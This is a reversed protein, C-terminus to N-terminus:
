IRAYLRRTKASLPMFTARGVIACQIRRELIRLHLGSPWSRLPLSQLALDLSARMMVIRQIRPRPHLNAQPLNMRKPGFSRAIIDRIRIINTDYPGFDSGNWTGDLLLIIRKPL